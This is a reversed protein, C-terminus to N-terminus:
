KQVNKVSAHDDWELLVDFVSLELFIQLVGIVAYVYADMRYSFVQLHYLKRVIM